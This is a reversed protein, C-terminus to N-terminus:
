RRNLQQVPRFEYNKFRLMQLHRNQYFDISEADDGYVAGIDFDQTSKFEVEDGFGDSIKTGYNKLLTTLWVMLDKGYFADNGPLSGLREFFYSRLQRDDDQDYSAPKTSSVHVDLNEYYDYDMKKMDMWQPLGFVTLYQDAKAFNLKALAAIVFPEDSWVPVIFSQLSDVLMINTLHESLLPDGIDDVLLEPIGENTHQSVVANARQFYPLVSTDRPLNKTLIMIKDTAFRSRAHETIRGAHLELSPRMQVYYPNHKVFPTTNWPSLLIKGQEGAFNAVAELNETYYPGILIDAQVITPIKTFDKEFFAREETDVVSFEIAIDHVLFDLAFCTGVYFELMKRMRTNLRAATTQFDRADFPALLVVKYTDKFVSTSVPGRSTIPPVMEESVRTWRITDVTAVNSDITTEEIHKTQTSSQKSTPGFIGCSPLCVALVLLYIFRNGSSPPLLSQVLTM